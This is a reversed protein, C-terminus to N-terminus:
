LKDTGIKSEKGALLRMINGKHSLFVLITMFLFLIAPLSQGFFYLIAPTLASATLASLSSYRFVVAMALWILCFIVAAPWFVGLLIGIFTAVGKGGHFRLWVPHLHGIFAGLGSVLGADPSLWNGVFVATTGKLLDAALTAAAMYKNGTRLVNTAGINGSGITRIDKIGGLKTILLGFPISDLLYGILLIGFLNFVSGWDM